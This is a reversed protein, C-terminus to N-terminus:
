KDGKMTFVANALETAKFNTWNSHAWLKGDVYDWWEVPLNTAPDFYARKFLTGGAGGKYLEWLILKESRNPVVMPESEKPVDGNAIYGKVAQALSTFDSEVMPWGNASKLYDSDPALDVSFFKLAGGAHAHVKGNAGLIAVAGKHPGGTEVIKLMRPRKFHLHGTETVQGSRKYVTMQYDFEYSPYSQSAKLWKEILGAGDRMSESAAVQSLGGVSGLLEKGQSRGQAGSVTCFLIATVAAAATFSHRSRLSIGFM